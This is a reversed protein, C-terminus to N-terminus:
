TIGRGYRAGRAAKLGKSPLCRLSPARFAACRPAARIKELLGEPGATEQERRKQARVRADTEAAHMRRASVYHTM